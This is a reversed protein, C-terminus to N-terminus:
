VHLYIREGLPKVSKTDSRGDIRGFSENNITTGDTHTRHVRCLITWRRQDKGLVQHFLHISEIIASLLRISRIRLSVIRSPPVMWIKRPILILSSCMLISCILIRQIEYVVVFDALKELAQTRMEILEPLFMSSM